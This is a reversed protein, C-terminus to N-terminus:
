YNKAKGKIAVSPPVFVPSASFTQKVDKKKKKKKDGSYFDGFGMNIFNGIELKWYGIEFWSYGKQFNSMQFQYYKFNIVGGRSLLLLMAM